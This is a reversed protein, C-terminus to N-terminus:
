VLSGLLFLGGEEFKWSLAGKILPEATSPIWTTPDFGLSRFDLKHQAFLEATQSLQGRFQSSQGGVFLDILQTLPEVATSHHKEILFSIAAIAAQKLSTQNCENDEEELYLGPELIWAVQDAVPMLILHSLVWLAFPLTNKTIDSLGPFNALVVLLDCLAVLLAETVSSFHYTEELEFGFEGFGAKSAEATLQQIKQRKNQTSSTTGMEQSIQQSAACFVTTELYQKTSTLLARWIQPYVAVVIEAAVSRIDRFLEILTKVTYYKLVELSQDTSSLVTVFIGAWITTSNGLARRLLDPDSSEVWNLSRFSLYVVMMSRYRCTLDADSSTFVAYATELLSSVLVHARDDTRELVKLAVTLFFVSRDFDEDTNLHTAGTAFLPHIRDFGEVNAVEALIVGLNEASALERNGQSFTRGLFALLENKEIDSVFLSTWYINILGRLTAAILSAMKPAMPASFILKASNLLFTPQEQLAKQFYETPRQLLVQDGFLRSYTLQAQDM